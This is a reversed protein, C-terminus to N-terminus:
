RASASSAPPSASGGSNIRTVLDAVGQGDGAFFAAMAADRFAVPEIGALECMLYTEDSISTPVGLDALKRSFAMTARLVQRYSRGDITVPLPDWFRPPLQLKVKWTLAEDLYRERDAIVIGFREPHEFWDTRPIVVPAQLMVCDPTTEKLLALTEAESEADDGPAPYILSGVTFIGAERSRRLAQQILRTDVGKRMGDLVRQSGSEIGFFLAACGSAHLRAFDAEESDRIHAFSAYRVALGAEIVADAFDNLLGYPTCSGAFRFARCGHSRELERIERLLRPIGKLRMHRHSKVPHSCFACNNRCGRSEDIVIVKVKEDGQLAPYVEPAYCPLPMADLNEVQREPTQRVSGDDARHILNPVGARARPDGGSLALERVTEEGEGYVLAEFAPYADLIRGLFLDVHPGGGFVRVEPYQRRVRAAIRASGEIGDGNWLKFGVAQIGHRRIAALVEDGIAVEARRRLRRRTAEARRLTGLLALGRLGALLGQRPARSEKWARALRATLEPSSMRRLTSVTCYDLIHVEAGADLLAGALNALGNDPMLSNPAFPYGAYDVLLWRKLTADAM